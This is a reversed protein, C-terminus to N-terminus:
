RTANSEVQSGLFAKQASMTSAMTSIRLSVFDLDEVPKCSLSKNPAFRLKDVVELIPRGYDHLVHNGIKNKGKEHPNLSGSNFGVSRTFSSARQDPDWM